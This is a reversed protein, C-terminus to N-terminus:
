YLTKAIVCLSCSRVVWGGSAGNMPPGQAYNGQRPQEGRRLTRSQGNASSPVYGPAPRMPPPPGSPPPFFPQAALSSSSNDNSGRLGGQRPARQQQHMLNGGSRRPPPSIAGAAFRASPPMRAAASQNRRRTCCRWIAALFLLVIIAVVITVPISIQLNQSRASSILGHLISPQLSIPRVPVVVQRSRDWIGGQLERERM